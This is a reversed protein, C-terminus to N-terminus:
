NDELTDLDVSQLDSSYVHPNHEWRDIRHKPSEDVM